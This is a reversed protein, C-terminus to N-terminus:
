IAAVTKEDGSGFQLCIRFSSEKIMAVLLEASPEKSIRRPAPSQNSVGTALSDEGKRLQLHLRHCATPQYEYGAVLNMVKDADAIIVINQSLFFTLLYSIIGM